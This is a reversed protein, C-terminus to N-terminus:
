KWRLSHRWSHPRLFGAQEIKIASRDDANGNQSLSDTVVGRFAHPYACVFTLAAPRHTMNFPVLSLMDGKPPWDPHCRGM